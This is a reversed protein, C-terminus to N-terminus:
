SEITSKRYKLLCQLAKEYSSGDILAKIRTNCFLNIFFQAFDPVSAAALLLMGRILHYDEHNNDIEELRDLLDKVQLAKKIKIRWNETISIQHGIIRARFYIM